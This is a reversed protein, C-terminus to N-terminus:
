ILKEKKLIRTIKEKSLKTFFKSNSSSNQSTVIEMAPAQDCLGLCQTTELGVKENKEGVKIKILKEIHRLLNESRKIHCVPSDCIKIVRKPKKSFSFYAYSSATEYLEAPSKDVKRSLKKLESKPIFGHKDQIQHLYEIILKEKPQGM